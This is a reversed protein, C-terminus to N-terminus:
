FLQRAAYRRPARSALYQRFTSATMPTRSFFGHANLLDAGNVPELWPDPDRLFSEDHEVEQGKAHKRRERYEQDLFTLNINLQEALAERRQGYQVPSFNALEVLSEVEEAADIAAAIAKEPKLHHITM